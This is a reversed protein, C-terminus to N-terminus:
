DASERDLLLEPRTVYLSISNLIKYFIFSSSFLQESTVPEYQIHTRVIHFFKVHLIKLANTVFCTSVYVGM